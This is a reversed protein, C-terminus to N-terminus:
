GSSVKEWEGVMPVAKTRVEPAYDRALQTFGALVDEASTTPKRRLELAWYGSVLGSVIATAFSTGSWGAFGTQNPVVPRSPFNRGVYVGVVPDKPEDSPTVDGGFTAVHDGLELEDGVNSYAAARSAERTTAAVGLVSGYRAPVRPGFRPRGEEVRHLSDNGSAAVGLCNNELLYAMLREVGGHLLQTTRRVEDRNRTLWPVDRPEGRIAVDAVFDPDDPPTLGYWLWPLHEMKPLFGLSMNIVLPQRDPNNALVDELVRLLLHLDGVGYRNLVPLVRIQASPALDHILGAIFLAHDSEDHGRMRGDPLRAMKIGEANREDLAAAHWDPLPDKPLFELLEQLQANTTSFAAAQRRALAWDPPTDLILVPVAASRARGRQLRSRFDFAQEQPSYRYRYQGRARPLKAPRPLCAPSGDAYGQQASAMWHPMAGVPTLNARRIADMDNAHTHHVVRKVFDPQQEALDYFLFGLPRRGPARIVIPEPRRQQDNFVGDVRGALENQISERVSTHAQRHIDDDEPLETVVVMEGPRYQVVHRARSEAM